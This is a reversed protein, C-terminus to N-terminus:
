APSPLRTRGRRRDDLEVMICPLPENGGVGIESRGEALRAPEKKSGLASIAREEAAICARARRLADGLMEAALGYRGILRSPPEPPCLADDDVPAMLQLARLLGAAFPKTLLRLLMLLMLGPMFLTTELLRSGRVLKEPLGPLERSPSVDVPGDSPNSDGFRGLLELDSLASGQTWTPMYMFGGQGYQM